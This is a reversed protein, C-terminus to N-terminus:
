TMAIIVLKHDQRHHKRLHQTAQCGDMKPMQMDQILGVCVCILGSRMLSSAAAFQLLIIPSECSCAFAVGCAVFACCLRPVSHDSKLPISVMFIIDYFAGAKAKQEVM